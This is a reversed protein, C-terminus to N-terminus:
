DSEDDDDDIDVSTSRDRITPDPKPAAKHFPKKKMGAIGPRQMRTGDSSSESESESEDSDSGLTLATRLGSATPAPKYSPLSSSSANSSKKAAEKQAKLEAMSLAKSTLLTRAPTPNATNPIKVPPKPKSPSKLVRAPVVINSSQIPSSSISRSPTPTATAQSGVVLIDTSAHKSEHGNAKEKSRKALAGGKERQQGSSENGDTKSDNQSPSSSEMAADGLNYEKNHRKDKSQTAHDTRVTPPPTEFAASLSREGVPRDKQKKITTKTSQIGSHAKSSKSPPAVSVKGAASADRRAIAETNAKKKALYQERTMGPPFFTYKDPEVDKDTDSLRPAQQQPIPEVENGSTNSDRRPRTNHEKADLGAEKAAHRPKSQKERLKRRSDLKVSPDKSQPGSPKRAAQSQFSTLNRPEENHPSDALPADKFQLPRQEKIAGVAPATALAPSAADGVSAKTKKRKRPTDTFGLGFRAEPQGGNEPTGKRDFSGAIEIDSGTKDDTGVAVFEQPAEEHRERVINVPEDDLNTKDVKSTKPKVNVDETNSANLTPAQAPSAQSPDGKTLALERHQKEQEVPFTQAPEWSNQDVNLMSLKIHDGSLKNVKVNIVQELSLFQSIPGKFSQKMIGNRHLTARPTGKLGQLEIRASDKEIARVIGVYVKNRIPRSDEKASSPISFGSDDRSTTRAGTSRNRAQASEQLSEQLQYGASGASTPTEIDSIAKKRNSMQWAETPMEHQGDLVDKEPEEKEVDNEVLAVGTELLSTKEEVRSRKKRRSLNTRGDTALEANDQAEMPRRMDAGLRRGYRDTIGSPELNDTTLDGGNLITITTQHKNRSDPSSEIMETPRKTDETQTNPISSGSTSLNTEDESFVAEMEADQLLENVQMGTLRRYSANVHNEKNSDNDTQDTYESHERSLSASMADPRVPRSQQDTALTLGCSTKLGREKAEPSDAVSQDTPDKSLADRITHQMAAAPELDDDVLNRYSRPQYDDGDGPISLTENFDYAPENRTRKKSVIPTGQDYLQAAQSFPVEADATKPVSRAGSRVSTTSSAERDVYPRNKKKSRASMQSDEISSQPEFVNRRPITLKFRNSASTARASSIASTSALKRRMDAPSADSPPTIPANLRNHRTQLQLQAHSLANATPAHQVEEPVSAEVLAVARQSASSGKSPLAPTNDSLLKETRRNDRGKLLIEGQEAPGISSIPKLVNQTTATSDLVELGFRSTPKLCQLPVGPEPSESKLEVDALIKHDAMDHGVNATGRSVSLQSDKTLDVPSERRRNPICDEEQPADHEVSELPAYEARNSSITALKPRHSPWINQSNASSGDGGFATDRSRKRASPKAQSSMSFLPPPPPRPIQYQAASLDPVAVSAERLPLGQEQIITVKTRQDSQDM